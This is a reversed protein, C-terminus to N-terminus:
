FKCNRQIRRCRYDNNKGGFFVKEYPKTKNSEAKDQRKDPDVKWNDPKNFWSM